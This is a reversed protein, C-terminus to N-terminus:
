PLIANGAYCLRCQTGSFFFGSYNEVYSKWINLYKKKVIKSANQEPIVVVHSLTSYM